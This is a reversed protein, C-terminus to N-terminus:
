FYVSQRPTQPRFLEELVMNGTRSFHNRRLIMVPNRRDKEANWMAVFEVALDTVPRSPRIGMGVGRELIEDCRAINIKPGGAILGYMMCDAVARAAAASDVADQWEARTKPTRVKM